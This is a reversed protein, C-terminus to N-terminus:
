SDLESVHDGQIKTFPHSSEDRVWLLSLELSLLVQFAVENSQGWLPFQCTKWSSIISGAIQNVSLTEQKHSSVYRHMAKEMVVMEIMMFLFWYAMELLMHEGGNLMQTDAM